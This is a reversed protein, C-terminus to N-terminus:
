FTLDHSQFLLVLQQTKYVAKCSLSERSKLHKLWFKSPLALKTSTDSSYHWSPCSGCPYGHTQSPLTESELHGLPLTLLLLVTDTGEQSSLFVLRPPGWKTWKTTASTSASAIFRPATRLFGTLYVSSRPLRDRWYTCEFSLIPLGNSEVTRSVATGSVTFVWLLPQETCM